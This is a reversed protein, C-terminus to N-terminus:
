ICYFTLYLYASIYDVAFSMLYSALRDLFSLCFILGIETWISIQFPYHLKFMIFFLQNPYSSCRYLACNELFKLLQQSFSVILFFFFIGRCIATVINMASFFFNSNLIFYYLIHIRHSLPILKENEHSNYFLLLTRPM